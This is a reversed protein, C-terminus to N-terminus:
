SNRFTAESMIARRSSPRGIGSSIALSWSCRLSSARGYKFPPVEHAVCLNLVEDQDEVTVLAVEDRWWCLAMAGSLAIFVRLSYVFADQAWLRRAWAAMATKM